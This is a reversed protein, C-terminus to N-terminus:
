GVHRMAEVPHKKAALWAPIAGGVLCLLLVLGNILWVDGAVIRAPLGDLYYLEKPLVEFGLVGSLGDLIAQRYRLVLFGAGNGLLIGAVGQILGYWMFIGMVTGNRFGMSKLLGIERTKQVSVM